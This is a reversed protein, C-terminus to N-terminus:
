ILNKEYLVLLFYEFVVLAEIIDNQVIKNIRSFWILVELLKFHTNFYGSVQSAFAIMLIFSLTLASKM